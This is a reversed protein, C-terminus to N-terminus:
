TKPTMELPWASFAQSGSSSERAIVSSKPTNAECEDCSANSGRYSLRLLSLHRSYIMLADSAAELSLDRPKRFPQPVEAIELCSIERTRQPFSSSAQAAPASPVGSPSAAYARGECEARLQCRRVRIDHRRHLGTPRTTALGQGDPLYM